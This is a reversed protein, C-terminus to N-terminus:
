QALAFVTFACAAVVATVIAGTMWYNKTVRLEINDKLLRQNQEAAVQLLDQTGQLRLWTNAIDTVVQGMAEHECFIGPVGQPHLPNADDYVTTYRCNEAMFLLVPIKTWEPQSETASAAIMPSSFLALITTIIAFNM